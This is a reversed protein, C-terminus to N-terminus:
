PHLHFELIETELGEMNEHGWVSAELVWDTHASFGNAISLVLHDNLEYKGSTEHVHVPSPMSYVETSDVKNYIRVQVNHVTEGTHSEFTVLIQITNNLHKDNADPAHIHIHYQFGTEEDINEVKEEEKTCSSLITVTSFM